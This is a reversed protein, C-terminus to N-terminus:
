LKVAYFTFQAMVYAAPAFDVPGTPRTGCVRVLQGTEIVRAQSCLFKVGGHMPMEYYIEGSSFYEVLRVVRGNRLNVSNVMATLNSPNDYRRCTLTFGEGRPPTVQLGIGRMTANRFPIADPKPLQVQGQSWDFLVGDISIM